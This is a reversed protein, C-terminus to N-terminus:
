LRAESSPMVIAALTGEGVEDGDEAECVWTVVGSRASRVELEMKMQQVVCVVDGEKVADGEDVLVEVLKGAFPIAVHSADAPDARRNASTTATASATTSALRLTYEVPGQGPTTFSVDAALVHPFENRLVRTVEVHSEGDKGASGSTKPTLTLAWADGKRVLTSAAATAVGRSASGEVAPFTGESVTQSRELLSQMERELWQTDCAGAFFDPHALVARLVPINTKM